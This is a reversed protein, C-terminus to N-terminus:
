DAGTAYILRVDESGSGLSDILGDLLEAVEAADIAYERQDKGGNWIKLCCGLGGAAPAFTLHYGAAIAVSIASRLTCASVKGWDVGMRERQRKWVVLGEDVSSPKAKPKFSIPQGKGSM